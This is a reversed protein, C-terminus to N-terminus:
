YAPTGKHPRVIAASGRGPATATRPSRISARCSLHDSVQGAHCLDFYGGCVPCRIIKSKDKPEVAQKRMSMFHLYYRRSARRTPKLTAPLGAAEGHEGTQAVARGQPAAASRPGPEDEYYVYALAGRERDRVVFCTPTEEMWHSRTDTM